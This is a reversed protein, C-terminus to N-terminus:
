KTVLPFEYTAGLGRSTTPASICPRPPLWPLGHAHVAGRAHELKEIEDNLWQRLQGVPGEPEEAQRHTADLAPM